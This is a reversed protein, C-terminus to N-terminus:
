KIIIACITLAAIILIAGILKEFWNLSNNIAKTAQRSKRPNICTFSREQNALMKATYIDQSHNKM